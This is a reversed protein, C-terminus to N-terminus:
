KEFVFTNTTTTTISNEVETTEFELTLGDESSREISYSGGIVDNLTSSFVLEMDEANFEYTGEDALNVLETGEMRENGTTTVTDFTYSGSSEFTGDASLILTPAFYDEGTSISSSVPIENENFTTVSNSEGSFDVLEYSGVINEETLQFSPGSDDDGCSVITASFLTLALFKLAKM